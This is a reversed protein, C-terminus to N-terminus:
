KKDVTIWAKFWILKFEIVWYEIDTFPEDYSYMIGLGQFNRRVGAYYRIRKM